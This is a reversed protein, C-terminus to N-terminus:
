VDALHPPHPRGPRVPHLDCGLPHRDASQHDSRQIQQLLVRPHRHRSLERLVPVPRRQAPITTPALLIASDTTGSVVITEECEGLTSDSTPDITLTTTASDTSAPITFTSFTATYDTGRVATGGLALTVTTASSPATGATKTATVTITTSVNGENLLAASVSLAYPVSDMISMSQPVPNNSPADTASVVFYENGEVLGDIIGTVTFTTTASSQGALITVTNNTSDLTHTFDTGLTADPFFLHGPTLTLTFNKDENYTGSGQLTATATITHPQGDELVSTPNTTIVLGTIQAAAPSVTGPLVSLATLTLAIGLLRRLTRPPPFLIHSM